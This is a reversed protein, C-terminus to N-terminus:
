NMMGLDSAPPANVVREIASNLQNRDFPKQLLVPKDRTWHETAHTDPSYGTMYILKLDKKSERLRRALLKGSLGPMVMDTLLM